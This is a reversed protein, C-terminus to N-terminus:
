TSVIGSLPSAPSSMGSCGLSNCAELAYTVNTWDLRAVSIELLVSNGAIDDGTQSYGSAGDPNVFLKYTTADPVPAWSFQLAKPGYALMLHPSAPVAMPTSGGGGDGGGCSAAVAILSVNVLAVLARSRRSRQM